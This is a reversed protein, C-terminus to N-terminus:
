RAADCVPDDRQVQDWDCHGYSLLSESLGASSVEVNIETAAPYSPAMHPPSDPNHGPHTPSHVTPQSFYLQHKSPRSLPAAHPICDTKPAPTLTRHELGSSRLGHLMLPGLASATVSPTFSFHCVRRVWQPRGPLLGFVISCHRVHDRNLKAQTKYPSASSRDGSNSHRKYPTLEPLCRRLATM